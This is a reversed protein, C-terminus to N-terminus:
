VRETCVTRRSKSIDLNDQPEEGLDAFDWERHAYVHITKVMRAFQADRAIYQLKEKNRHVRREMLEVDDDFMGDDEEAKWMGVRIVVRSFVLPRALDRFQRSVSLCRRQDVNSLSKVVGACLEAPLRAFGYTTNQTTAMIAICIFSTFSGRVSCNHPLVFPSGSPRPAWVLYKNLSKLTFGLGVRRLRVVPRRGQVSGTRRCLFQM